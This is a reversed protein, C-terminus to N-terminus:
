DISISIVDFDVSSKEVPEMYESRGVTLQGLVRGIGVFLGSIGGKSIPPSGVDVYVSSDQRSGPGLDSINVAKKFPKSPVTFTSAEWSETRGTVEIQLSLTLYKLDHSVEFRVTSGENDSDKIVRLNTISLRSILKEESLNREADREMQIVQQRQLEVRKDYSKKVLFGSALVALVFCLVYVFRRKAIGVRQLTRPKSGFEGPRLDTIEDSDFTLEINEFVGDKALKTERRVQLKESDVTSVSLADEVLSLPMDDEAVPPYPVLASSTPGGRNVPKELSNFERGLETTRDVREFTEPASPAEKINPLSAQIVAAERSVSEGAELSEKIRAKLHPRFLFPKALALILSVLLLVILCGGVLLAQMLSRNRSSSVSMKDAQSKKTVKTEKALKEAATKAEALEQGAAVLEAKLKAGVADASAKSQQTETISSKLTGLIGSFDRHSRMLSVLSFRNEVLQIFYTFNKPLRVQGFKEKIKAIASEAAAWGAELDSSVFSDGQFNGVKLEGQHMDYHVGLQFEGNSFNGFFVDEDMGVWFGPGSIKDNSFTGMRMGGIEEILFGFGQAQGNTCQESYCVANPRNGGCLILDASLGRDVFLLQVAFVFVRVRKM